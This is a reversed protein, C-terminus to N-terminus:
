KRRMWRSAIVLGAIGVGYVSLISPEPVAVTTAFAPSSALLVAGIAISATECISRVNM